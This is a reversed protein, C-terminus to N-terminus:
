LKLPDDFHLRALRELRRSILCLEFCSIPHTKELIVRLRKDPLWLALVQKMLKSYTHYLM